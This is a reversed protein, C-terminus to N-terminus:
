FNLNIVLKVGSNLIAISQNSSFITQQVLLHRLHLPSICIELFIVWMDLILTAM